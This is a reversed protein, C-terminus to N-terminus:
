LSLLFFSFLFLNICKNQVKRDTSKLRQLSRCWMGNRKRRFANRQNFLSTWVTWGGRGRRGKGANHQTLVGANNGSRSTWKWAPFLCERFHAMVVEPSWCRQGPAVQSPQSSWLPHRDIHYSDTSFRKPLSRHPPPVFGPCLENPWM